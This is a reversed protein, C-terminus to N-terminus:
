LIKKINIKGKRENACKMFIFHFYDNINFVDYRWLLLFSSSDFYEEIETEVLNYQSMSVPHYLCM